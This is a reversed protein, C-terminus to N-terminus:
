WRSPKDLVLKKDDNKSYKGNFDIIIKKKNSEVELSILDGKKLKLDRVLSKPLTVCLSYNGFKILKRSTKLNM